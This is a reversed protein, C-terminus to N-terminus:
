TKLKREKGYLRQGHVLDSLNKANEEIPKFM